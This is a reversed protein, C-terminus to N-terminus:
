VYLDKIKLIKIGSDRLKCIFSILQDIDNKSNFRHHCLVGRTHLWHPLANWEITLEQSTRQIANNLDTQQKTNNLVVPIEQLNFKPIQENFYTINRGLFSKKKLLHGIHNLIKRKPTFRVGTSIIKFRCNELAKLTNLDYTGYPFSFIRNWYKEFYQDMLESGKQIDNKQEEFSRGRGFEGRVPAVTKISHDFGHQIIEINQPHKQHLTLLWDVVEKSINSPEVAHSIILNHQIIQESLYVLSPDLTSRVDDNRLFLTKM